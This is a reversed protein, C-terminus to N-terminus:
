IRNQVFGAHHRVIVVMRTGSPTSIPTDNPNFEKTTQGFGTYAFIRPAVTENAESKKKSRPDLWHKKWQTRVTRAIGHAMWLKFDWNADQTVGYTAM